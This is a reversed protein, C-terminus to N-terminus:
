KFRRGKLTLQQYLVPNIKEEMEKTIYNALRDIDYIKEFWRNEVTLKAKSPSTTNSSCRMWAEHVKEPLNFDKLINENTIRSRVDEILLHVHLGGSKHHEAVSYCNVRKKSRSGFVMASLVNIFKGVIAEVKDRSEIKNNFTLTFFYQWQYSCIGSVTEKRFKILQAENMYSLDREKKLISM